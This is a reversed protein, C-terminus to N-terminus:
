RFTGTHNEFKKSDSRGGVLRGISFSKRLSFEIDLSLFKARKVTTSTIDWPKGQIDWSYASTRNPHSSIRSSDSSM